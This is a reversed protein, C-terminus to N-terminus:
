YRGRETLKEISSFLPFRGQTIHVHPKGWKREDICRETPLKSQKVPKRQANPDRSYIAENRTKKKRKEKRGNLNSVCIGLSHILSENQQSVRFSRNVRSRSSLFSFVTRVFLRNQINFHGVIFKGLPFDVCVPCLVIRVFPLPIIHRTFPHVFFLIFIGVLRQARNTLEGTVDWLWTCKAMAFSSVNVRESCVYVTKRQLATKTTATGKVMSSFQLLRRASLSFRIRLGYIVSRLWLSNPLM